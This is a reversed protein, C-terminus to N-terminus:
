LSGCTAPDSVPVIVTLSGSLGTWEHRPHPSRRTQPKPHSAYTPDDCALYTDLGAQHDRGHLREAKARVELQWQQRTTIYVNIRVKDM